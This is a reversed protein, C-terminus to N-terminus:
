SGPVTLKITFTGAVVISQSPVRISSGQPAGNLMLALEEVFDLGPVAGLVAAVDSLFVPRGLDWGEGAPGGYVPQFFAALAALAGKEVLGADSAVIPAVTAAVDVPFDDPGTVYIQGSAALGAPARAAIYNMVDERLGFSPYPAEEQSDPIIVLTVWGPRPRGSSDLTPLAHSAAVSPSAERAMTEYDAPAIARGRHRITKPARDISATLTEGDSGGEAARANFVAQIGPVVGLLQTITGNAVNGSSGGGSRMQKMLVASGAPPVRGTVGDGFLIRGLARDIAYTRDDPGSFYLWQASQWHVWVESVRKQRDRVLRLDGSVIDTQSGEQGLQDELDALAGTDGNLIELALIRWEVNARPGSLEQVELREGEVVPVQTIIFAQNPTGASTGLSVDNLTRVQSAWVANPYIGNVVPEGPPLDEKLRARVFYLPTGFRALVASDPEALFSAIGPVRLYATEDQVSLPRWTGGDWYEWTLAPGMDGPDEEIDFYIGIDDAPPQQDFGLYLSPTVDSMRKFPSFSTGPWQADGTHNEYQFDNYTLVQEAHFPGFQWTYGFRISALVPPQTVVYTFQNTANAGQWTVTQTYGYSGSALRFRVWLATQDNVATAEMDVPVTFDIVETVDLDTQSNALNSTVPLPAWQQRGNWYEWFGLHPLPTAIQKTSQTQTVAAEDQPSHTRSVYLRGKAGPKSFLEANSVYFTTGPQPLQGIPYFPKTVDVKVTNAFVQDPKLGDVTLTLDIMPQNVTAPTKPIQQPTEMGAYIVTYTYGVGGPVSSPITYVGTDDTVTASLKGFSPDGPNSITVVAGKVPQGAENKVIGGLGAQAPPVFAVTGAPPPAAYPASFALSPLLARNVTTSLRLEDIEPLGKSPDPPLPDLLRGRLWFATSGNVATQQATAGDAELEITGSGTFGVTGDLQPGAPDLCGLATDLFGRWVQGDWYEWAIHLEDTSPHNLQFEVGLDVNEPTLALLTNHAIYLHHPPVALQDMSFLTIPNRSLFDATHDIYEDRGPWLSVVQALKGAMVGVATETEFVIQGSPGTAAVETSIPVSGSTANAALQFVMPARAEQAPVLGLGLLDFFALKNKDPAQNLRQIVAGIFRAAVAALGVGATKDPALWYPVYSPRRTLIETLLTRYDRSDLVVAPKSIM